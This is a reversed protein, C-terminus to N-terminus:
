NFPETNPQRSSKPTNYKDSLHLSLGFRLTNALPSRAGNLGASTPILYSFDIQLVNYKIGAGVTMYQRNGKTPHEYFYGARAFIQNNYIYELALSPNIERLEEKFGGPADSFSSIAAAVVPKNRNDEGFAIKNEGTVTDIVPQGSNDYELVFPTPTLLKNIDLGVMVANYEDIEVEVSTGVRIQMPLFDRDASSSYAMKNGLNTLGGGIRLIADRNFLVQEDNEYYVSADAAFATGVKTTTGGQTIGSALDSVIFRGGLSVSFDESLKRAYHGSLALEYPRTTRITGGFNDTLTIDGLTFYRLDFAAGSLEDIRVAAGVYSLNIDNIGLSRLWPTYNLGVVLPEAMFATKAANFNAAAAGPSTAIGTGALGGSRADPTINLFPVATSVVRQQGLLDRTSITNQAFLSLSSTAVFCLLLFQRYMLM